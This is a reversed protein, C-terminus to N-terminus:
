DGNDKVKKWATEFPAKKRGGLPDAGKSKILAKLFPITLRGEEELSKKAKELVADMSSLEKYFTAQKDTKEEKKKLDSIM